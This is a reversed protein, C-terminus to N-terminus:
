GQEFIANRFETAQNHLIDLIEEQEKDSPFRKEVTFFYQAMAGMVYGTMQGLAYDEPNNIQYRRKFEPNRYIIMLPAVKSVASDICNKLHGKQHDNLM